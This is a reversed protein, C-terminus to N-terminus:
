SCNFYIFQRLIVFYWYNIIRTMKGLLVGLCNEANGNNEVILDEVASARIDLNPTSFLEAQLHKKYLERDIQARPGWVAPGKSRNLVKYQIGSLDCIRGCVGDLADVEKM